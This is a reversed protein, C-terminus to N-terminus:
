NPSVTGLVYKNHIEIYVTDNLTLKFHYICTIIISSLPCGINLM